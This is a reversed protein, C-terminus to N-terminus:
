PRIWGLIRGMQWAASSPIYLRQGAFKVQDGRAARLLDIGRAVEPQQKAEMEGNTGCEHPHGKKVFESKQPFSAPAHSPPPIVLEPEWGGAFLPHGPGRGARM